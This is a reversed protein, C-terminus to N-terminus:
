YVLLHRQGTAYARLRHDDDEVTAWTRVWVKGDLNKVQRLFPLIQRLLGTSQLVMEASWPVCLRWQSKPYLACWADTLDWIERTAQRKKQEITEESDQWHISDPSPGRLERGQPDVTPSEESEM